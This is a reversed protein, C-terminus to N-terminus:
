TSSPSSAAFRAAARLRELVREEGLLALVSVLPAGHAVGTIALRLTEYAAKTPLALSKALAGVVDKPPIAFLAHEAAVRTALAELYRQVLPDSLREHMEDGAEPLADLKRALMAVEGFTMIEEGYATIFHTLMEADDAIRAFGSARLCDAICTRLVDPALARIARANFARLRAANYVSASRGVRDLSFTSSLDELTFHERDDGPSWGLLVLHDLLASALYGQNRYEAVGVTQHRKSLKQHDENLILPVHAYQPPKLALAKLVLLQLPTNSLHEDGRVVLDIDMKADDVAAAFNYTPVGNSRVIVFDSLVAHDFTVRGHVVDDVVTQGPQMRFRLAATRGQNRMQEREEITLRACRGQYRTAFVGSEKQERQETELEETTCFCEYAAGSALMKAAEEAYMPMRESQRYPAYPGGVDPGEDWSLGLWQLDEIVAAESESRNRSADTDEIRLVFTGGSRKAVLYNFLATRAGGVHLSGTPSPAFRLRLPRDLTQSM